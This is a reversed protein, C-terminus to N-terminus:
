ELQANIIPLINSEFIEKIIIRYHPDYAISYSESHHLVYDGGELVIAIMLSDQTLTPLKERFESSVDVIRQWEMKWEEISLLPEYEKASKIFAAFFDDFSVIGNEILSLNVRVYNGNYGTPEYLPGPFSDTTQLEYNLYQRADEESAIIHGPGFYDQFCSKYIDQLTAEPYTSILEQISSRILQEEKPACSDIAISALALLIIHLLLHKRM